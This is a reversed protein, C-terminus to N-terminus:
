IVEQFYSAADKVSGTKRSRELAAAKREARAQNAGPLDGRVSQGPKPARVGKRKAAAIAEGGKKSLKSYALADKLVRYIRHDFFDMESAKFGIGGLYSRLSSDVEQATKQDALEPWVRFLRKAEREKVRTLEAERETARKASEEELFSIGSALKERREILRLRERTWADPDEHQLRVMDAESPADAVLERQLLQMMQATRNLAEDHVSRLEQQRIEYQEDLTDREEAVAIADPQARWTDVVTRLPIQEGNPGEVHMESLFDDEELQLYQALEGITSITGGDDQSEEQEPEGEGSHPPLPLGDPQPEQSLADQPNPQPDELNPQPDELAQFRSALDDLSPTALLFPDGVPHQPASM